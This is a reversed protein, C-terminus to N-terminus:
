LSPIVRVELGRILPVSIQPVYIMGSESKGSIWDFGLGGQGLGDFSIKHSFDAFPSRLQMEYPLEEHPQFLTALRAMVGHVPEKADEILLFIDLLKSEFKDEVEKITADGFTDHRILGLPTLIYAGRERYEAGFEDLDSGPCLSPQYLGRAEGVRFEIGNFQIGRDNLTGQYKEFPSFWEGLSIVKEKEKRGRPEGEHLNM